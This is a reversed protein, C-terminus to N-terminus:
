APSGESINALLLYRSLMAVPCTYNNTASIIVDKGERYIDTKSKEINLNVHDSYFKINSRKLNVLESFRLFGAYCNLCMTVLRLDNLNSSTTGYKTVIQKVEKGAVSNCTEKYKICKDSKRLDRLEIFSKKKVAYTPCM